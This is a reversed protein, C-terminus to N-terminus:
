SQGVDFGKCGRIYPFPYFTLKFIVVIRPLTLFRQKDKGDRIAAWTFRNQFALRTFSRLLLIVFIAPAPRLCRYNNPFDSIDIDDVYRNLIDIKQEKM